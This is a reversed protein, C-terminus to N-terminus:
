LWLEWLSDRRYQTQPSLTSSKGPPSGCFGGCPKLSGKPPRVMEAQIQSPTPRGVTVWRWGLLLIIRTANGLPINIMVWYMPLLHPHWVWLSCGYPAMPRAWLMLGRSGGKSNTGFGCALSKPKHKDKFWLWNVKKDPRKKPWINGIFDHSQCVPLCKNSEYINFYIMYTLIYM